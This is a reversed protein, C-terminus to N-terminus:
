LNEIAVLSFLIPIKKWYRINTKRTHLWFCLLIISSKYLDDGPKTKNKESFEGIQWLFCVNGVFVGFSSKSFIWLNRWKEL